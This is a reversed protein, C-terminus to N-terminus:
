NEEAQRAIEQLIREMGKGDWEETKKRTRKAILQFGTLLRSLEKEPLQRLKPRFPLITRRFLHEAVKLEASNQPIVVPLTQLTLAEHMSLGASTFFVDAEAIDQLLDPKSKFQEITIHFSRKTRTHNRETKIKMANESYEWVFPTNLLIPEIDRQKSSAPMKLKISYECSHNQHLVLTHLLKELCTYAKKYHDYGGFAILFNRPHEPTKAPMRFSTIEPSLLIFRSGYLLTQEGYATKRIQKGGDRNADILLHASPLLTDDPPDFVATLCGSSRFQKLISNETLNMDFLIIGPLPHQPKPPTFLSALESFDKFFTIKETRDSEKFFSTTDNHKKVCIHAEGGQKKWTKAITECRKLHGMGLTRSGHTVLCLSPVPIM